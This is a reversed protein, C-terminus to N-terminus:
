NARTKTPDVHVILFSIGELGHAKVYRFRELMYAQAEEYTAFPGSKDVYERSGASGGIEEVVWM